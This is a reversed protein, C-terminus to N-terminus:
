DDIASYALTWFDRFVPPPAPSSWPTPTLLITTMREAPDARWSTGLGGDRHQVVLGRRASPGAACLRRAPVPKTMSSIRFIAGAEIGIADVHLDGRREVLSVLGSLEGREVYGSLVDHMRRLRAM